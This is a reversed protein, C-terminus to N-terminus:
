LLFGSTKHSSLFPPALLNQRRCTKMRMRIRLLIGSEIKLRKQTSQIM